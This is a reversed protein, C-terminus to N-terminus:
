KGKFERQLVKAVVDFESQSAPRRQGASLNKQHQYNKLLTWAMKKNGSHYATIIVQERYRPDTLFEENLNDSVAMAKKYDGLQFYGRFLRRGLRQWQLNKKAKAWNARLSEFDESRNAWGIILFKAEERFDPEASEDEALDWLLRRGTKIDKKQWHSMAQLLRRAEPIPIKKALDDYSAGYGKRCENQKIFSLAVKSDVLFESSHEVSKELVHCSKQAAGECGVEVEENCMWSALDVREAPGLTEFAVEAAARAELLRKMGWYTKARQIGLFSGLSRRPEIKELFGTARQFDGRRVYHRIAWVLIYHEQTNDLAKFIKSVDSWKEETWLEVIQSMKCSDSESDVKCVKALYRDSLEANDAHVFSQALYALASEEGQRVLTLDVEAGLCTKAVEGAAFLAMAVQLREPEEGDSEPWDEVAKGIAKCLSGEEELSDILAEEGKSAMYLDFSNFSLLVLAFVAFAAIVGHVFSAEIIGPSRVGKNKLTVVVTDAVRDHFPRRKENSFVSLHPVLVLLSDLLWFISRLLSASFTPKRHKWLREVRLGWFLKGLTGGFSWVMLTQYVIVVIGSTLIVLGLYLLFDTENQLILAKVIEKKFPAALLTSIPVIVLFFDVVVAALRDLPSALKLRSSRHTGAKTESQDEVSPKESFADEIVM